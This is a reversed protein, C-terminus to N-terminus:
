ESYHGRLQIDVLVCCVFIRYCELRHNLFPELMETSYAVYTPEWVNGVTRCARAQNRYKIDEIVAEYCSCQWLWFSVPSNFKCTKVRGQKPNRCKLQFAEIYDAPSVSGYSKKFSSVFLVAPKFRAKM